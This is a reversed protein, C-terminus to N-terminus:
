SATPPLTCEAAVRLRQTVHDLIKITTGSPASDAILIEVVMQEVGQPSPTQTGDTRNARLPKCSTVSRGHNADVTTPGLTSGSVKSSSNTTTLPQDPYSYNWESRFWFVQGEQVEIVCQGYGTDLHGTNLERARSSSGPLIAQLTETSIIGACVNGPRVPEMTSFRTSSPQGGAPTRPPTCATAVTVVSILFLAALWSGGFRVRKM